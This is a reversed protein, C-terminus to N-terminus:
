TEEEKEDKLLYEISIINREIFLKRITGIPVVYKVTIVGLFKDVSCDEFEYIDGCTDKIKVWRYKTQAM